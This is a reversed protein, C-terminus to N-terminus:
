VVDGFGEDSSTVYGALDVMWDITWATTGIASDRTLHVVAHDVFKEVHIVELSPSGATLVDAQSYANVVVRYNSSPLSQGFPLAVKHTQGTTFEATYARSGSYQQSGGLQLFQVAAIGVITGKVRLQFKFAFDDTIPIRFNAGNGGPMAVAETWSTWVLPNGTTSWRYELNFWQRADRGFLSVHVSRGAGPALPVARSVYRDQTLGLGASESLAQLPRGASRLGDNYKLFRLPDDLRFWHPDRLDDGLLEVTGTSAAATLTALIAQTALEVPTTRTPVEVRSSIPRVDQIRCVRGGDWMAEVLPCADRLADTLMPDLDAYVSVATNPGDSTRTIVQLTTATAFVTGTVIFNRSNEECTGIVPSSYNAFDFTVDETITNGTTDTGTLRLTVVTAASLDVSQLGVRLRANGLMSTEFTFVSTGLEDLKTACLLHQPTQLLAGDADAVIRYLKPIGPAGGLSIRARANSFQDIFKPQIEDHGSGGSVLLEYATNPQRVHVEDNVLSDPLPEGAEVTTYLLRAGNVPITDDPSLLLVNSNPILEAIIENTPDDLSYCGVLRVPFRTLQVYLQSVMGTVSGNLDTKVRIPTITEFCLGGPVGPVDQDRGVVMGYNILQDYLTLDGQSLDNLGLNHPTDESGTGVWARHAMDVPSFWPRNETLNNRTLDVVVQQGATNDATAVTVYAIVVIDALRTPSFLTTNQWDALSAVSLRTKDLPDTSTPEALKTRRAETTNYRTRTLTDDDQVVAHEVFVVNQAGITTRAMEVSGISAPLEVRMGSETFCVGPYVDIRMPDNANQQVYFPESTDAANVPDAASLIGFAAGSSRYNGITALLRHRFEDTYVSELYGLDDITVPTGYNLGPLRPM